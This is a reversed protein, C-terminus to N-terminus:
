WHTRAEELDQERSTIWYLNTFRRRFADVLGQDAQPFWSGPTANSCIIVHTWEAFCDRYRRDLPCKWKDLLMNMQPINWREYDFEEFCITLQGRYLGWPDRGPQVIFVDPYQTRVRHSKGVGTPGCYAEVLVDRVVLPEVMLLRLAQLNTAYRLYLNPLAEAIERETNNARIMEM